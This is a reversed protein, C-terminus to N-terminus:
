KSRMDFKVTFNVSQMDIRCLTKDPLSICLNFKVGLWNATLQVANMMYGSYSEHKLVKFYISIFHFQM